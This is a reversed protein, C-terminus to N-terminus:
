QVKQAAQFERRSKRAGFFHRAIFHQKSIRPLRPILIQHSPQGKEFIALYIIGRVKALHGNSPKRFSSQHTAM